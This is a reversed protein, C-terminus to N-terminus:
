VSMVESGMSQASLLQNHNSRSPHSDTEVHLLLSHSEDSLFDTPQQQQQQNKRPRHAMGDERLLHTREGGGDNNSWNGWSASGSQSSYPSGMINNNLNKGEGQKELRRSRQREMARKARLFNGVCLVAVFGILFGAFAVAVMLEGLSRGRSKYTM